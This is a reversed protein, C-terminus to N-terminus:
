VDKLKVGEQIVRSVKNQNCRPQFHKQLSREILGLLVKNGEPIQIFVMKCEIATEYIDSLEKSTANPGQRTKRKGSLACLFSNLFGFERLDFHGALRELIARSGTKGVYIPINNEDFFIYVGVMSEKNFILDVLKLDKIKVKKKKLVRDFLETITLDKIEDYFLIFKHM